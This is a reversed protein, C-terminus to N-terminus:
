GGANGKMEFESMCTWNPVTCKALSLVLAGTKIWM